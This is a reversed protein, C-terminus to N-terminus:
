LLEMLCIYINDESASSSISACPLQTVQELDCLYYSTSSAEFTPGQEEGTTRLRAHVGSAWSPRDCCEDSPQGLTESETTRLHFGLIQM